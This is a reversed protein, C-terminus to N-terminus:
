RLPQFSDLFSETDISDAITEPYTVMVRYITNGVVVLRGKVTKGAQKLHYHLSPEGKHSSHEQALIEEVEKEKEMLGDFSKALIKKSGVLKWMGPFDIYSVSYEAHKDESKFEQYELTKDSVSIEQSDEKPDTPFKVEFRDDSPSFAQWELPNHMQRDCDFCVFSFVSTLVVALGVCIFTIKKGIKSSKKQEV